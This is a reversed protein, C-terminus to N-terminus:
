RCGETKSSSSVETIQLMEYGVDSNWVSYQSISNDHRDFQRSAEWKHIKGSDAKTTKPRTNCSDPHIEM